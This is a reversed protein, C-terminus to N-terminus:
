ASQNLLPTDGNQVTEKKEGTDMQKQLPHGEHHVSSGKSNMSLSNTHLVSNRTTSQGSKFNVQHFVNGNKRCFPVNLKKICRTATFKMVRRFKENFACYLVFNLSLELWVLFNAIYQLSLYFSSSKFQAETKDGGFLAYAIPFDSFASPIICVIFLFVISILTITLRRQERQWAAERNNRIHLKQRQQGAQHVAYVLYINACSLIVLPLFHICVSYVWNIIFFAKGHRFETSDLTWLGNSLMKPKFVLFRPINFLAGAAVTMLVKVKASARDCTDKAWLPHRVFLFREVTLQVTIWVSSTTCVNVLGIFIYADFFRWEYTHTDKSFQMYIFSLMLATFDTCALGTLSTYPSEPLQNQTLVILNIVNTLMGFICVFPGLHNYILDRVVLYSTDPPPPAVTTINTINETIVSVNESVGSFIESSYNLMNSMNFLQTTLDDM